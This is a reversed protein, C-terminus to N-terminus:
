GNIQALLNELRTEGVVRAHLKGDPDIVYFTPTALTGFKALFDKRDVTAWAVQPAAALRPWSKRVEATQVSDETTVFVLRAASVRELNQDLVGLEYHCHGCQSNYLVLVTRGAPSAALPTAGSPTNLTLSPVRSGVPLTQPRTAQVGLWGAVAVIGLTCIGALTRRAQPTM